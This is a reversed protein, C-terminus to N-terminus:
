KQELRPSLQEIIDGAIKSSEKMTDWWHIALSKGERALQEKNVVLFRGSRNKFEKFTKGLRDDQLAAIRADITNDKVRYSLLRPKLRQDWLKAFEEEATDQHQAADMWSWYSEAMLELLEDLYLIIPEVINQAQHQKKWELEKARLESQKSLHEKIVAGFFGIAASGLTVIATVWDM